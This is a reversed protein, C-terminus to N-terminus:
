PSQRARLARSEGSSGIWSFLWWSDPSSLLYTSPFSYPSPTEGRTLAGQTGSSFLFRSKRSQLLRASRFFPFFAINTLFGRCRSAFKGHPPCTRAWAYPCGPTPFPLVLCGPLSLTKQLRQLRRSGRSVSNLKFFACLPPSVLSVSCRDVYLSPPPSWVYLSCCCFRPCPGIV